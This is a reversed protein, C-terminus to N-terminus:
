PNALLQTDALVKEIEDKLRKVVVEDKIFPLNIRVNELAGYIAATALEIACFADSRCNQNGHESVCHAMKLVELSEQATKLPVEAAHKIAAPSNKTKVVQEYARADEEILETLKALKRKALEHIKKFDEEVPQYKKKGITLECVMVVLAAGMAGALASASGGGPTPKKSALEGLFDKVKKNVLEM